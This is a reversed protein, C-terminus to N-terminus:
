EARTRYAAPQSWAGENVDYVELIDEESIFVPGEDQALQQQERGGGGGGGTGSTTTDM